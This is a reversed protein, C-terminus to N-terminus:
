PAPAAAALIAKLGERYTSYRLRVGLERKMRDNRVRKNEAYFSLAMESLRAENLAVLPPPAMGLLSAAYAAVEEPAAPEDDAVNYIGVASIGAEPASDGARAVAAEITAAIDEVHIRNFIQGPKCVRRAMGARLKDLASRGPGYIGALRFIDLRKSSRRALDIWENEARLRQQSRRSFPTPPTNEDVWAGGHDGYVGITSLYGIWTLNRSQALDSSFHRLVPDGADDPPISVLVHTAKRIAEAAEVPASAGDFYIPEWGDAAASLDRSTGIVRWGEAKFRRAVFSASYGVGFILLANM